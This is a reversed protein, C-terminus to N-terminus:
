LSRPDIAVICCRGVKRDVKVLGAKELREPERQRSKEGVGFQKLEKPRLQIKKTRGLIGWKYWLYIALSVAKARCAKQMWALPIPGKIFAQTQKKPKDEPLVLAPEFSYEIM